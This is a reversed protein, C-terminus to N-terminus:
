PLTLIQPGDATVAVTHEFHASLSRDCTVVTWDDELTEVEWGGANVMPELALVLGPKLVPGSGPPGFNPVQPEEHMDRGIGHGGYERVVSFGAKEVWDQVAHSIDTLRHGTQARAVARGLAERTVDILRRAAQPVEGVPVTIAADAHFGEYRVGADISVIDGEELKRPGPIGHVVQSNVSTCIAAPYGRYGKFAPLGGHHSILKEALRDLDGTRVGPIVALRLEELCLALIRGAQRMSEIERESKLLIM